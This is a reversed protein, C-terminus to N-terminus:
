VGTSGFGSHATNDVHTAFDDPVVVTDPCLIHEFILQAVREGKRVHFEHQPPAVCHLCVVIEGRYDSDIVGADIVFHRNVALSSRMAIRGYCGVPMSTISIGTRVRVVGSERSIGIVDENATLDYGASLMTARAPVVASESLRKFSVPTLAHIELGTSM